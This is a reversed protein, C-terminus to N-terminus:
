CGVKPPHCGEGSHTAAKLRFPHCGEVPILPLRPGSYVCLVRFEYSKPFYITIKPYKPHM